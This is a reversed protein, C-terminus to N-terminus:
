PKLIDTELSLGSDSNYGHVNYNRSLTVFVMIRGLVVTLGKKKMRFIFYHFSQLVGVETVIIIFFFKDFYFSLSIKEYRLLEWDESVM